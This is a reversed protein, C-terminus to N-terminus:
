PRWPKPGNKGKRQLFKADVDQYWQHLNKRMAAVRPGNSAAVNKREGIDDDLNYLQVSGDEYREILKWDNM